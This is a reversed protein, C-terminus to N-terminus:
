GEGNKIRREWENLCYLAAFACVATLLPNKQQASSTMALLFAIMCIFNAFAIASPFMANFLEVLFKRVKM